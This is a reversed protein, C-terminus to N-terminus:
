KKIQKMTIYTKHVDRTVFLSESGCLLKWRDLEDLLLKVQDKKESINATLREIEAHAKKESEQLTTEIENLNCNMSKLEQELKNKVEKKEDKAKKLLTKKMKQENELETKLRSFSHKGREVQSTLDMKMTMLDKIEKSYQEMMESRVHKIESDRDEQTAVLRFLSAELVKKDREFKDTIEM